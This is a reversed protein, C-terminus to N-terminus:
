CGLEKKLEKKWVFGRYSKKHGSCASYINQWKYEPNARLIEELSGWRKIFEGNKTYQLFDYKRKKASVKRAMGQRKETDEWLTKSKKALKKRWEEGYKEGEAHNLKAKVSQKKRTSDHIFFEEGTHRALNYGYNSDTTQYMEMYHAERNLMTKAEVELTFEELVEFVFGDVGDHEIDERFHQAYDYKPPSRFKKKHARVRKDFDRTQGIYRKSNRKNRIQYICIM